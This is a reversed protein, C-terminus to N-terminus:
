KNFDKNFDFIDSMIKEESIKEYNIQEEGFINEEKNEDETVIKDNNEKDFIILIIKMKMKQKKMM